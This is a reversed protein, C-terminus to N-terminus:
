IEVNNPVSSPRLDVYGRSREYHRRINELTNADARNGQVRVEAEHWKCLTFSQDKDRALKFQEISGPWKVAYRFAGFPEYMSELWLQGCEACENLVVFSGAEVKDFVPYPPGIAWLAQSESRCSACL